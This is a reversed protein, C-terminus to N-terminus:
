LYGVVLVSHSDERPECSATQSRSLPSLVRGAKIRAIYASLHTLAPDPAQSKDNSTFFMYLCYFRVDALSFRDGCLFTRGDSLEGNLWTCGAKGAAAMPDRLEKHIYGPRKDKFFDLWPGNQFATAIPTLIKDSVRMIWMDTEAREEPSKGVVSSGGIQEDLFRAIAISESIAKGSPLVLAPVEGLPNVKYFDPTRNTGKGLDLPVVDLLQTCGVEEAFMHVVDPNPTGPVSYFKMAAM